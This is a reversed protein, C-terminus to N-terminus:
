SEENGHNEWSAETFTPHMTLAAYSPDRVSQFFDWRWGLKEIRKFEDPHVFRGIPAHKISPSLYQGLTVIDCDAKRLDHLVEVSEEFTEGLGLM